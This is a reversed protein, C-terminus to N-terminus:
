RQPRFSPKAVQGFVNILRFGDKQAPLAMNAISRLSENKTWWGDSPKLKIKGSLTSSGLKSALRVFGEIKAELDNGKTEFKSFDAKGGGIEVTGELSGLEIRPLDFHQVEGGQLVLNEGKLVVTGEAKQIDGEPTKIEVDLQKVHGELNLGYSRMPSQALDVDRLHATITQEDKGAVFRGDIAGGFADADFSIDRRGRLTNILGMRVTARAIKVAPPGAPAAAAPTPAGGGAGPAAAAPVPAPPPPADEGPTGGEAMVWEVDRLTLGALLSPRASGVHLQIGLARKAELEVRSALQQSPFTLWFAAFFALSFFAPYGVWLAWPRDRLLAPLARLRDVLAM